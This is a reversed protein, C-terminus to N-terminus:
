KKSRLINAPILQKGIGPGQFSVELLQSGGSDFYLVTIPHSGAPLKIKGQREQPGHSGSNDVVVQDGIFLQSGDNSNVYFDYTGAKDIYIYGTYKM